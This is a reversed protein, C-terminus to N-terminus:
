VDKMTWSDVHPTGATGSIFCIVVISGVGDIKQAPVVGVIVYTKGDADTQLTTEPGFPRITSGPNTDVYQEQAVPVCANWASLADLPQPTPTPTVSAVPTASTATEAPAPDASCGGLLVALMLASVATAVGLIGRNLM